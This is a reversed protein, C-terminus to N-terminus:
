FLGVRVSEIGWCEQGQHLRQRTTMRPSGFFVWFQQQETYELYSATPSIDYRTCIDRGLVSGSPVYFADSLWRQTIPNRRTIRNTNPSLFVRQIRHQDLPASKLWTLLRAPMVMNVAKIMRRHLNTAESPWRYQEWFRFPLVYRSHDRCIELIYETLAETGTPWDTPLDRMITHEFATEILARFTESQKALLNTSKALKPLKTM